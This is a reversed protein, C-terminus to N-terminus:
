RNPYGELETELTQESSKNFRSKAVLSGSTVRGAPSDVKYVFVVLGQDEEGNPRSVRIKVTHQGQPLELSVQPSLCM